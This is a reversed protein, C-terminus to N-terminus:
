RSCFGTDRGAWRTSKKTQLSFLRLGQMNAMGPAEIKESPPMDLVQGLGVLPLLFAFGRRNAIAPAEIKERM